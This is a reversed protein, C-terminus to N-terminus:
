CVTWLTLNPLCLERGCKVVQVVPVESVLLSRSWLTAARWGGSAKAVQRSFPLYSLLCIIERVKCVFIFTRHLTLLTRFHKNPTHCCTVFYRTAWPPLITLGKGESKETWLVMAPYRPFIECAARYPFHISIQLSWSIDYLINAM